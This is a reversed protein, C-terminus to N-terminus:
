SSLRCSHCLLATRSAMCSNSSTQPLPHLTLAACRQQGKIRLAPVHLSALRAHAGRWELSRAYHQAQEGLVRRSVESEVFAPGRLDVQSDASSPGASRPPGNLAHGQAEIAQVTQEAAQLVADTDAIVLTSTVLVLGVEIGTGFIPVQHTSGDGSSALVETSRVAGIRSGGELGLAMAWAPQSAGAVAADPGTLLDQLVAVVQDM